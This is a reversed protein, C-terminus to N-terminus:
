EEMVGGNLMAKKIKNQDTNRDMKWQMWQCGPDKGVLWVLETFDSLQTLLDRLTRGGGQYVENDDWTADLLFMADASALNRGVGIARAGAVMLWPTHVYDASLAEFDDKKERDVTGSSMQYCIDAETWLSFNAAEKPREIAQRAYWKFCQSFTLPRSRVEALLVSVLQVTWATWPKFATVIIKRGVGKKHIKEYNNSQSRLNKIM